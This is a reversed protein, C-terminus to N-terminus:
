NDVLLLDLTTSVGTANTDVDAHSLFDTKEGFPSRAINLADVHSTGTSSLYFRTATRFVGGFSRISATFTAGTSSPVKSISASFDLIYATKGAPVTYIGMLTQADLIAIYARVKATDVPVGSSLATNEYIYINGVLPTGGSNYARYVRRLPTTLAKRTQGTLTVLQITEAWDEDLGEVIIIETDSASSSSISDIAATASFTYLEEAPFDWLNAPVASAISPREGFKSIISYGPILGEQVRILFPDPESLTNMFKGYKVRRVWNSVNSIINHPM